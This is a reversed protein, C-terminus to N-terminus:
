WSGLPGRGSYGLHYDSTYYRDLKDKGCVYFTKTSWNSYINMVSPFVRYPVPALTSSSPGTAADDHQRDAVKVDSM